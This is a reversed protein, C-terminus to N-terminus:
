RPFYSFITALAQRLPPSVLSALYLVGISGFVALRWFRLTAGPKDIAASTSVPEEKGSGAHVRADVLRISGCERVRSGAVAM